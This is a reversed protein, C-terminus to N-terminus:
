AALAYQNTRGTVKHWRILSNTVFEAQLGPEVKGTSGKRGRALIKGRAPESQGAGPRELGARMKVL